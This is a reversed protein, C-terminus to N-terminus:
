DNTFIRADSYGAARVKALSAEAEARSAFPGTRVRYFRGSPSVMGDLARAAREANTQNSFTAAQVVFGSAIPATPRAVSAQPERPAAAPAPAPAPLPAFEPAPPPLVEAQAQPVAPGPAQATAQPAPATSVPAPPLQRKLVAVLSMPTDMRLPAEGGARLEARQVEPPNVRRVRVPTDASVGLQTMAAPSLALLRTSDMPGRREVRALITRGSELSTVEIYSPVPLTHHAATIGAMDTPAALYGVEDYNLTDSPTFTTGAIVYPEGVLVPYDASPGNVAAAAVVPIREAAGSASACGALVVLGSVAALGALLRARRNDFLKM